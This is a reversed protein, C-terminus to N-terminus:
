GPLTDIEALPWIEALKPALPLENLAFRTIGGSAESEASDNPDALKVAGADEVDYVIPVKLPTTPMVPVILATPSVAPGSLPIEAAAM